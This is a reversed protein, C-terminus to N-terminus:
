WPRCAPSRHRRPRYYGDYCRWRTRSSPTVRRRPVGSPHSPHSPPHLLPPTSFPHPPTYPENRYPTAHQIPGLRPRTPRRESVQQTLHHERVRGEARVSELEAAHEVELQGVEGLLTELRKNQNYTVKDKHIIQHDKENLMDRLQQVSSQAKDQQITSLEESRLPSPPPAKKDFLLQM